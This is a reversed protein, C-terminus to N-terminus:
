YESTFHEEKSMLNNAKINFPKLIFLYYFFSFFPFSFLIVSIHILQLPLQPINVNYVIVTTMTTMLYQKTANGTPFILILSNYM